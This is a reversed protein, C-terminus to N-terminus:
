ICMYCCDSSVMSPSEEALTVLVEICIRRLSSAIFSNNAIGCLTTFSDALVDHFTNPAACAVSCLSSCVELATTLSAAQNLALLGGAESSTSSLERSYTAVASLMHALISPELARISAPTGYEAMNAVVASATACFDRDALRSRILDSFWPMQSAGFHPSTVLYGLCVLAVGHLRRDLGSSAERIFDAIVTCFSEEHMAVEAVAACIARQVVELPESSIALMLQARVVSQTAPKIIRWSGEHSLHRRLLVAALNRLSSEPNNKLVQLWEGCIYLKHEHWSLVNGVQLLAVIYNDIDTNALEVARAEASSRSLNEADLLQQLLLSINVANYDMTLWGIMDFHDVQRLINLNV